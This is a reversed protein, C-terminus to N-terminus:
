GRTAPLRGTARRSCPSGRRRAQRSLGGLWVTAHVRSPLDEVLNTDKIEGLYARACGEYVRLLPELSEVASRHLYLANPLLKGIPSHQCAEDIAQARGAQFLLQDALECASKYTGFFERIDRQLGRPLKSIPPRKRFRALALHPDCFTASVIM